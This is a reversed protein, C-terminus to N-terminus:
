STTGLPAARLWAASYGHAGAGGPNCGQGGPLGLKAAVQGGAEAPGRAEVEVLADGVVEARRDAVVARLEEQVGVAAVPRLQARRVQQQEVGMLRGLVLAAPDIRGGPRDVARQLVADDPADLLVPVVEVAAM